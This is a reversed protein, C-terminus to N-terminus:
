EWGRVGLPHPWSAVHFKTFPSMNIVHSDMYLLKPEKRLLSSPTCGKGLVQIKNLVTTNISSKDHSKFLSVNRTIYNFQLATEDYNQFPIFRHSTPPIFIMCCRVKSTWQLYCTRTTLSILLKPQMSSYLNSKQELPFVM